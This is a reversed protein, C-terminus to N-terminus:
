TDKIAVAVERLHKECTRLKGFLRGSLGHGEINRLHEIIISILEDPNISQEQPGRRNLPRDEKPVNIYSVPVFGAESSKKRYRRQAEKWIDVAERLKWMQGTNIIGLEYLDDVNKENFKSKDGDLIPTGTM